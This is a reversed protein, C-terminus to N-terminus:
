CQTDKMRSHKVLDQMLEACCSSLSKSHIPKKMYELNINFYNITDYTLDRGNSTVVFYWYFLTSNLLSIIQDRKTSDDVIVTKVHPSVDENGKFKPVFNMARIWYGIANHYWITNDKKPIDKKGKKRLYKSLPPERRLRLLLKQEIEKGVKPIIGPIVLNTAELFELGDFM